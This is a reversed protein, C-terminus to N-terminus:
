NHGDVSGVLVRLLKHLFSEELFDANSYRFIATLNIQM